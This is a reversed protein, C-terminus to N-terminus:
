RHRMASKLAAKSATGLDVEESAAGEVNKRKMASKLVPTGAAAAAAAAPVVGDEPTEAQQQQQQQQQKRASKLASKSTPPQLLFEQVTLNVL